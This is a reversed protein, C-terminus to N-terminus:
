SSCSCSVGRAGGSRGLASRRERERPRRRGYTVLASEGKGCTKGLSGGSLEIYLSRGVIVLITPREAKTLPSPGPSASKKSCADLLVKVTEIELSHAAGTNGITGSM